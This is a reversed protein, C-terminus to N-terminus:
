LTLEHSDGRRWHAQVRDPFIIVDSTYKLGSISIQGFRYSDIRNM